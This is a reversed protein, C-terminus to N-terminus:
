NLSMHVYWTSAMEGWHMSRMITDGQQELSQSCPLLDMVAGQWTIANLQSLMSSALVNGHVLSPQGTQSCNVTGVTWERSCMSM